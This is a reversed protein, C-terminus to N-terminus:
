SVFFHSLGLSIVGGAGKEYSFDTHCIIKKTLKNQHSALQISTLVAISSIIDYDTLHLSCTKKPLLIESVCRSSGGSWRFVM